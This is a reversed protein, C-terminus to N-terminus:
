GKVNMTWAAKNFARWAEIAEDRKEKKVLVYDTDFTSVAFVSISKEALATTISALIGVLAFDLQGDVVFAAYGAEISPAHEPGLDPLVLSEACVLSTETATVNLSFLSLGARPETLSLLSPWLAVVASPKWKVIKYAEPIATLTVTQSSM